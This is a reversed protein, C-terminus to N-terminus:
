KNKVNVRNSIRDTFRRIKDIKEPDEWVIDNKTIDFSDVCKNAKIGFPTMDRRIFEMLEKGSVIYTRRERYRGTKSHGPPMVPLIRQMVFHPRCSILKEEGPTLTDTVNFHNYLEEGLFAYSVAVRYLTDNRNNIVHSGRMEHEGSPLAYYTKSTGDNNVVTVDPCVWRYIGSIGMGALTTVVLSLMFCIYTEKVPFKTRKRIIATICGAVTLSGVCIIAIGEISDFHSKFLIWYLGICLLTLGVISKLMSAEIKRINKGEEKETAM